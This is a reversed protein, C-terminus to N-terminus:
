LIYIKAQFQIHFGKMVAAPIQIVDPFYHHRCIAQIHLISNNYICARVTRYLHKEQNFLM